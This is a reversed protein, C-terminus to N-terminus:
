SRSATDVTFPDPKIGLHDGLDDHARRALECKMGWVRRVIESDASVVHDETRHRARREYGVSGRTTPVSVTLVKSVQQFQCLVEIRNVHVATVRDLRGIDVRRNSMEMGSVVKERERVFRQM